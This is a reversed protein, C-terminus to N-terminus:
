VAEKVVPYIHSPMNTARETRDCRALRSLTNAGTRMNKCREFQASCASMNATKEM